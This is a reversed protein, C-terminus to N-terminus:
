ELGRVPRLTEVERPVLLGVDDEEVHHHGPEVAPSHGLLQELVVPRARDRDDEEGGPGLEAVARTAEIDTPDVVHRLREVRELERGEHAVQQVPDVASLEVLEAGLLEGLQTPEHFVLLESGPRCQPAAPRLEAQNSRQRQSASASPEFGETGVGCGNRSAHRKARMLWAGARSSSTTAGSASRSSGCSDAGRSRSREKRSQRAIQTPASLLKRSSWPVISAEARAYEVNRAIGETRSTTTPTKVRTTPGSVIEDRM